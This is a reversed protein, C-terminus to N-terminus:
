VDASLDLAALRASAEERAARYDDSQTISRAFDGAQGIARGAVYMAHIAPAVDAMTLVALPDHAPWLSPHDLDIVLLNALAGEALVGARLRPHLRGPVGWVRSLLTAPRSSADHEDYHASRTAWVADVDADGDAAALMQEYSASWSTGMTRQGAILRLEQQVNMTDNNSACDTAVAWPVGTASWWGPRAPFGFVLASYPCWIAHHRDGALKRLDHEPVYICHAMATTPASSLVGTRELLGVPTCDHAARVRKVEEISQAVHLHVPLSHKAAMEAVRSLLAPSVTDTAHPGLAAAIGRGALEASADIRLTADLQAEWDEKGPGALDQLTPAVVGALGVDALAGAIEDARYYHDWVLGVGCLLSDYAGMRAFARVDAPSMRKEITFFLNEVMNGRSAAHLDFGRVFGLALHTHANVFAPVILKDGFDVAAASTDRGRRVAVIHPPAIEVAGPVIEGDILVRESTVILENDNETAM